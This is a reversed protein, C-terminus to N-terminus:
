GGYDSDYELATSATKAHFHIIRKMEFYNLNEQLSYWSKKSNYKIYDPM